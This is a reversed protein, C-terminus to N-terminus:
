FYEVLYYSSSQVGAFAHLIEQRNIKLLLAAAIKRDLNIKGSPRIDAASKPAAFAETDTYLPRIEYPISGNMLRLIIYRTCAESSITM